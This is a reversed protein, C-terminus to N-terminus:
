QQNKAKEIMERQRMAMGDITAFIETLSVKQRRMKEEGDKGILVVLFSGKGASFERRLFDIAEKKLGRGGLRSEGKELVEFVLINRDKIGNQQAQMEKILSQYNPDDPSSSFVLLLRNKWRYADLEMSSREQSLADHVAAQGLCLILVTFIMKKAL